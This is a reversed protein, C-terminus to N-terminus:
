ESSCNDNSPTQEPNIVLLREHILSSINDPIIDNFFLVFCFLFFFIYTYIYIYIYIYIYGTKM